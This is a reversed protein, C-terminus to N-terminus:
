APPATTTRRVTMEIPLRGSAVDATGGEELARMVLGVARSGQDAPRQRITTLGFMEALDHDDIGIVSLASPVQIGLERAAIITGIAIEDCGAVIATPRARPDALVSLAVHYGGPISFECARFDDGPEIGARDLSARFGALRQSHVHFDMEEDPDGGFHMIRRHGLGLMHDTAMSAAEGDDISLTPIGDIRGGIGVVPKGITRLMDVEDPALAINVALVADVRKRVIFYEFIRRREVPDARLRYLTMDYGAEILASEIGDLVEAFFWRNLYPMVVAVNRSRGTVLSAANQSAVYGMSRAAEVVRTRTAEAVSGSGSLARSATAKSVGALRAVDAIGSM